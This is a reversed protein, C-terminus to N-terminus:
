PRYQSRSPDDTYTVSQNRLLGHHITTGSALFNIILFATNIRSVLTKSSDFVGIKRWDICSKQFSVPCMLVQPLPLIIIVARCHDLSFPRQLTINQKVDNLYIFIIYSSQTQQNRSLPFQISYKVDGSIDSFHPIDDLLILRSQASPRISPAILFPFVHNIGDSVLFGASALNLFFLVGLHHM